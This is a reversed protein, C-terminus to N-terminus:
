FTDYRSGKPLFDQLNITLWWKPGRQETMYEDLRELMAAIWILGQKILMLVTDAFGRVHGAAALLPSGDPNERTRKPWDYQEASLVWHDNVPISV